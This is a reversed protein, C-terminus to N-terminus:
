FIIKSILINFYDLFIFFYIKKFNEYIIILFVIGLLAKLSSECSDKSSLFKIAQNKDHFYSNRGTVNFKCPCQAWNIAM